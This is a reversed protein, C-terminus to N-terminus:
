TMVLDNAYLMDWLGEGRAERTAEQMVEVIKRIRLSLSGVNVTALRLLDKRAENQRSQSIRLVRQGNLPQQSGLAKRKNERSM